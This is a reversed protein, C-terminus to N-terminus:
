PRMWFIAHTAYAPQSLDGSSVSVAIGVITSLAIGAVMPVFNPNIIVKNFTQEIKEKIELIEAKTKPTM